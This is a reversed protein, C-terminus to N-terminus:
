KPPSATAPAYQQASQQAPKKPVELAGPKKEDSGVAGLLHVITEKLSGADLANINVAHGLAKIDQSSLAVQGFNGQENVNHQRVAVDVVRRCADVARNYDRSPAYDTSGSEMAQQEGALEERTMEIRKEVLITAINTSATRAEVSLQQRERDIIDKYMALTYGLADFTEEDTVQAYINHESLGHQGAQELRKKAFLYAVKQSRDKFMKLMSEKRPDSLTQLAICEKEGEKLGDVEFYVNASEALTTTKEAKGGATLLMPSGKQMVLSYGGKKEVENAEMAVRSFLDLQERSANVLEDPTKGTTARCEQASMKVVRGLRQKAALAFKEHLEQAKSAYDMAKASNRLAAAYDINGARLKALLAEDEELLEQKKKVDAGLLAVRRQSATQQALYAFSSDIENGFTNVVVLKELDVLESFKRNKCRENAIREKMAAFNDEASSVKLFQEYRTSDNGVLDSADYVEYVIVNGDADKIAGFSQTQAVM